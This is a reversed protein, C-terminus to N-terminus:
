LSGEEDEEGDDEDETDDLDDDIEDVLEGADDRGRIMEDGTGSDSQQSPNKQPDQNAM